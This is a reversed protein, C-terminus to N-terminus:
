YVVLLDIIRDFVVDMSPRRGPHFALCDEVLTKFKAPTSSPLPLMNQGQTILFVVNAPSYGSFARMGTYMEWLLVGFSYVDGQPGNIGDLLLEPAMHSVTGLRSRHINLMSCLASSGLMAQFGREDKHSSTLLVNKSNLGHVVGMGHLCKLASSIEAATRLIYKMNPPADPLRMHKFWGRYQKANHSLLSKLVLSQMGNSNRTNNNYVFRSKGNM